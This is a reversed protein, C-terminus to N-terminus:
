LRTTTTAILFFIHTLQYPPRNQKRGFDDTYIMGFSFTGDFIHDLQVQASRRQAGILPPNYPLLPADYDDTTEALEM